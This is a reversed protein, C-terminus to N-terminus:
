SLLRSCELIVCFTDRDMRWCCKLISIFIELWAFYIKMETRTLMLLFIIELQASPCCLSFLVTEPGQTLFLLLLLLQRQLCKIVLIIDSLNTQTGSSVKRIRFINFIAAIHHSFRTAYPVRNCVSGSRFSFRVRSCSVVSRNSKVFNM